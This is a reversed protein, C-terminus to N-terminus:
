IRLISQTATSRWHVLASVAFELLLASCCLRSCLLLSPFLQFVPFMCASMSCSVPSSPSSSSLILLYIHLIYVCVCYVCVYMHVVGTICVPLEKRQKKKHKCMQVLDWRGPGLTRSSSPNHPASASTELHYACEVTLM